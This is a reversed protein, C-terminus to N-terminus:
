VSGERHWEPIAGSSDGPWFVALPLHGGLGRREGFGVEECFRRVCDNSLIKGQQIALLQGGVLGFGQEM